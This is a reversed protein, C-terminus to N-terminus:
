DVYGNRTDLQKCMDFAEQLSDFRTFTIRESYNYTQEGINGASDFEAYFIGESDYKDFHFVVQHWYDDSKDALDKAPGYGLCYKYTVDTGSHAVIKFYDDFDYDTEYDHDYMVLKFDGDDQQLFSECTMFGFNYKDDNYLKGCYYEQYNLSPDEKIDYEFSLMYYSSSMDSFSNSISEHVDLGKTEEQKSCGTLSVVLLVSLLTIIIRKM